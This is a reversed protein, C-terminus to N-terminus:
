LEYTTKKEKVLCNDLFGDSECYPMLLSRVRSSGNVAVASFAESYQTSDCYLRYFNQGNVIDNEQKVVVSYLEGKPLQFAQNLNVTIEQAETNFTTYPLSASALLENGGYRYAEKENVDVKM